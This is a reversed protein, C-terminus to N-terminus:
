AQQETSEKPGATCCVPASITDAEAFQASVVRAGVTCCHKCAADRGKGRAYNVTGEQRVGTPLHGRADYAM